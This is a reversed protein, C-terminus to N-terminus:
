FRDIYRYDIHSISIDFVGVRGEALGELGEQPVITPTSTASFAWVQRDTSHILIRREKKDANKKKTNTNTKTNPKTNTTPSNASFVWVQRRDSSDIEEKLNREKKDKDKDKFTSLIAM